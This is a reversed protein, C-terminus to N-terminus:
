ESKGNPTVQKAQRKREKEAKREAVKQQRELADRKKKEYAAIKAERKTAMSADGAKQRRVKEEHKEQRSPGAAKHAAEDSVSAPEAPRPEEVAPRSEREMREKESKELRESLARDRETVRAQRKFTNAEIEVPRLIALAVRRREKAQDICSTAFFRPHCAQEETVYRAEIEAREASAAALAADAEVVSRISGAPYRDAAKGGPAQAYSVSAWALVVLLAAASRTMTSKAMDRSGTM